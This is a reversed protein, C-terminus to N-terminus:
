YVEAGEAGGPALTHVQVFMQPHCNIGLPNIDQKIVDCMCLMGVDAKTESRSFHNIKEVQSHVRLPIPDTQKSSMDM